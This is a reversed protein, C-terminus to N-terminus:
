EKLSLFRLASRSSFSSPSLNRHCRWWLLEACMMATHLARAKEMLRGIGSHFADTERYDAYGRFTDNRWTTNKSNTYSEKYWVRPVVFDLDAVLSCQRQKSGAKKQVYKHFSSPNALFDDM